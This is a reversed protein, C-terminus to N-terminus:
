AAVVRSSGHQDFLGEVLEVGHLDAGHGVGAALLDLGVLGGREGELLAETEEDVGLPGGALLALQLPSEVGGLEAVRRRELGDVEGVRAAEVALLDEGEAGAGPDGLAVVEQQDTRGPDSLTEESAGEDFPGAAAAEGGAVDAHRAQQVLEGDAAAVAGVGAHEGAEGLEVQEGDVVPHEGREAVASRRSRVSTMSSRASRAEVRTALWSGTLSQCVTMPSGLWASAM